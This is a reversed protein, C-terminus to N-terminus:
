RQRLFWPQSNFFQGPYCLLIILILAMMVIDLDLAHNASLSLQSGPALINGIGGFCDCNNAGQGRSILWTNQFIFGTVLALSVGSMFRASIGAVLLIGLSLEIWPLWQALPIIHKASLYPTNQLTMLFGTPEQIKGVGSAIFILGLIIGAGIGVRRRCPMVQNLIERARSKM